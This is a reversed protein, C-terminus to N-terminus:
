PNGETVAVNGTLFGAPFTVSVSTTGQGSNITAGTPATWTYTTAGTTSAPCTYTQTTGACVAVATGTISAPTVPASYVTLSKAASTYCATGSNVTVAGSTFPSPFTVSISTSGQGSNIIAGTPVAWTYTSAGSVATTSYTQTSGACVATAPGTLATPAATVNSLALTRATASIGSCNVGKVSLTGTTFGAAFQVVVSTSGQGSSITAGTPATWEYSDTNALAVISYTRSETSCVGATIGTIVGVTGPIAKKAVTLTRATTSTGFCNVSKVSISGTTYAADFLFTATNSGQGSTITANAPATWTYTCGTVDACVYTQSGGACVSASGTISAPAAPLTTIATVAFQAVASSGCSNNAVVQVNGGAFTSSTAVTISNTTSTGSMGTPLTWTYSTAEGTVAGVSYVIGTSSKCVQASGSIVPAAPLTNVTITVATRTASVCGTTTNRTQAYYNTTATLVPTTYTLAGSALLTGGTSANYWDVTAGSATTANIVTGTGSCIASPTTVTPAAPLPNVTVTVLRRTASVCGTTTNRTQAFYNTTASLVPTTYTRDRLLM